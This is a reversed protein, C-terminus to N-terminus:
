AHDVNLARGQLRERFGSDLAYLYVDKIPVQNQQGDPRDQRSRGRTQGVCRWNAARYATGAFRGRQVFSELLYIPHGYKRQWDQSLRRSVRGLVHSALLPIKVWPLVLLRSNNAVLSLHEQRAPADWGVLRDRAACQWAAAGFLLCALPRAQRDRVLYQLNEGVPRRYSLYHHWHLLQAFLQQEQTAALSVEQIEVPRVESLSAMLPCNGPPPTLPPIQREGRQNPSARRRAPLEILGRRELKLLLSRAAMDKLQGVPNRWHWLASLERSLRYRSWEPHAALLQQMQALESVGLVRGQLAITESM